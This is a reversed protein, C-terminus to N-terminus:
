KRRSPMPKNDSLISDALLVSKLRDEFKRYIQELRQKSVGAETAAIKFTVGRIHSRIAKKQPLTFGSDLVKNISSRFDELSIRSLVADEVEYTFSKQMEDVYLKGANALVVGYYHRRFRSSYAMAKFFLSAVIYPEKTKPNENLIRVVMERLDQAADDLEQRTAVAVRHAFYRVEREINESIEVFTM